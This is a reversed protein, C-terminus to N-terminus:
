TSVIRGIHARSEILNITADNTQLLCISSDNQCHKDNTIQGITFISNLKEPKGLVLLTDKNQKHIALKVM